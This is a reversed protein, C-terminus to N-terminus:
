EHAGLPGDQDGTLANLDAAQRANERLMGDSLTTMGIPTVGHGAKLVPGIPSAAPFWRRDSAV